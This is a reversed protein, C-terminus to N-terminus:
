MIGNNQKLYDAFTTPAQYPQVIPQQIPQSESLVEDAFQDIIRQAEHFSSPNVSKLLQQAEPPLSNLAQNVQNDIQQNQPTPPPAYIPHQADYQTSIGSTFSINPIPGFSM